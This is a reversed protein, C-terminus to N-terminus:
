GLSIFELGGGSLELRGSSLLDSRFLRVLDVPLPLLQIATAALILGCLWKVWRDIAEGERAALIPTACILILIQLITDTWLGPAAGGGLLAAAIFVFGLLYKRLEAKLKLM